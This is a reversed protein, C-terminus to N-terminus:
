RIFLQEMLFTVPLSAFTWFSSLSARVPWTEEWGSDLTAGEEQWWFRGKPFVGPHQEMREWHPPWVSRAPGPEQQPQAWGTVSPRRQAPPWRLPWATWPFGALSSPCTTGTTEVQKCVPFPSAPAPSSSWRVCVPEARVWTPAICRWIHRFSSFVPSSRNNITETCLFDSRNVNVSLAKKIIKM